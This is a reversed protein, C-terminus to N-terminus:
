IRLDNEFVAKFHGEQSLLQKLTGSQLIKGEHIYYIFDAMKITSLRHAIIITTKDKLFGELAEFLSDETDIDLASTSEDFIVINPDAIIMRAISVRQRQGGSLKIGNKGVLTELGKPLKDVFGELQSIRLAEKIKEEGCEKGFTLNFRITENFLMPNQLVLYVHERIIDLGIEKYSIGDYSIDGSNPQYFGVMLQAITSKGKGSAGVIAVKSKAKVKLSIDQLVVSEKDYSFNVSKFEISNARKNKFPNKRHPFKPEVELDFIENIRELAAKANHYAYQINIIEHIPNVIVWLYGFIALMLGITLDSYFVMLIGAARFIEFGVLFIMYSGKTAIESKFAFSIGRKKIENALNTLNKFFSVQANAARVQWFLELTESLSDQFAAIIANERKKYKSVSRAIKSTFFIIFPNFLLIFLALQWHILLLVVSVAVIMFLSILLRSISQSLFMDITNVDVVSMSSIKGSGFSEYEKLSVKSIRKLLDKRIKYTINKSIVTFYWTQIVSLSFYIARLVITLILVILVYFWAEKHAGSIKDINEVLFGPKKLLVEDVLLPILIPAAAAAIAAFVAIVNAVILEKKYKKVELFIDKFSYKQM